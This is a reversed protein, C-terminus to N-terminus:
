RGIIEEITSFDKLGCNQGLVVDCVGDGLKNVLLSLM